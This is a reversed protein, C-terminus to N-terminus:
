NSRERISHRALIYSKVTKLSNSLLWLWNLSSRWVKKLFNGFINRSARYLKLLSVLKQQFKKIAISSKPRALQSNAAWFYTLPFTHMGIITVRSIVSHLMIICRTCNCRHRGAQEWNQPIHKLLITEDRQKITFLVQFFKQLMVQLLALIQQEISSCDRKTM